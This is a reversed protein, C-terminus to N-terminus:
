GTLSHGTMLIGRPCCPRPRLRKASVLTLELSPPKHVTGDGSTSWFDFDFVHHSGELSGLFSLRCASRGLLVDGLTLCRGLLVDGLCLCRGFSVDLRSLESCYCPSFFPPKLAMLELVLLPYVQCTLYGRWQQSVRPCICGM